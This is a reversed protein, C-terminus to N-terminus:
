RVFIMMGKNVNEKAAGYATFTANSKVTDYTAKLWDESRAVSSIRVEDIKGPWSQTAGSGQNGIQLYTNAYDAHVSDTSAANEIVKVGDQLGACGGMSDYKFAIHHWENRSLRCDADTRILSNTVISDGNAFIGQYRINGSTKNWQNTANERLLVCGDGSWGNGTENMLYYTNSSTGPEHDDQHAWMEITFATANTLAVSVEDKAAFSGIKDDQGFLVSNGVIGAQAPVISAIASTQKSNKYYLDLDASGEVANAMTVGTDNMHWVATYNNAWVSAPNSSPVFECGYYATIKTSANLSPVKVWVLSTGSADWTDVESALLNGEADAFHLDGGNPRLCDDYDFGSIGSESIKVLVPFDTLTEEGAYGTFSVTFRHSYKTWDNVIIAEYEAFDSESVCDHTAKLWDASRAVSSIRVEDIKGPWVDSASTTSNGLFIASSTLASRLNGTASSTALVSGNMAFSGGTTSDYVGAYHNWTARTPRSEPNAATESGGTPYFYFLVKGGQWQNCGLENLRLVSPWTSNDTTLERLLYYSSRTASDTSHDHDDQYAWCEVTVADTGSRLLCASDNRMGGQYSANGFQVSKGIVGTQGVTNKGRSNGDEKFPAGAATADSMVANGSEDVEEDNMHWVGLYGNSWVDSATVADPSSCGYHATIVTSANLSPVKVWVLSEGTTDWTDIESPLLNGDADSFRLDGGNADAFKSYAFGNAASVRVLVPFNELTTSGAYGSFTVEVSMKYKTWDVDDAQAVCSALLVAPFLLRVAQLRM